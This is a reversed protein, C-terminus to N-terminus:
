TPAAWYVQTKDSLIKTAGTWEEHREWRTQGADRTARDATKRWEYGSPQGAFAPPTGKAGASSAGPPAGTYTTTRRIVPAYDEWTEQGLELGRAFLKANTSLDDIAGNAVYQFQYDGLVGGDPPNEWAKIEKIDEATLANTGGQGVAFQPHEYLSRQFQVWEVELNVERSTGSPTDGSEYFYETTVDLIGRDTGPIPELRTSTVRGDYEGWASNAAPEESQLESYPGVYRIDTRYSSENNTTKPYDKLRYGIIFEDAM